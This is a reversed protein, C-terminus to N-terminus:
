CLWWYCACGWKRFVWSKRCHYPMGLLMLCSSCNQFSFFLSSVVARAYWISMYLNLLMWSLGINHYILQCIQCPIRKSVCCEVYKEFYKCPLAQFITFVRLPLVHSFLRWCLNYDFHFCPCILLNLFIDFAAVYM